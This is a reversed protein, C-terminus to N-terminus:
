RPRRPRDWKALRARIDSISNPAPRPNPTTQRLEGHTQRPGPPVLLPKAPDLPGNPGITITSASRIAEHLETAKLMLFLASVFDNKRSSDEIIEGGKYQIGRLEHLLLNTIARDSERAYPLRIKRIRFITRIALWGAETHKNKGVQFKTLRSLMSPDLMRGVVSLLGQMGNSEVVGDPYAFQKCVLNLENIVAEEGKGDPLTRDATLRHLHALCIENKPNAYGVAWAANDRKLSSPDHGLYYHHGPQAISHYSLDEDLAALLDDPHVLQSSVTIRKLMRERQFRENDARTTGRDQELFAWSMRTPWLCARDEIPLNAFADKDISELLAKNKAAYNLTGQEDVAPYQAYLFRGSNKAQDYIDNPQQPTGSLLFLGGSELTKIHASNLIEWIEDSESANKEELLDDGDLYLGHLGRVSQRISRGLFTIGNTLDLRYAEWKQAGKSPMNAIARLGNKDPNRWDGIIELWSDTRLWPAHEIVMTKLEKFVQDRLHDENRGILGMLKQESRLPNGYPDKAFDLIYEAIYLRVVNIAVTKGGGRTMELCTLDIKSRDLEGTMLRKVLRRAAEFFSEDIHWNVYCGYQLRAVLAIDPPSGEASSALWTQRIAPDLL